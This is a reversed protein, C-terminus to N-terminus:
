IILWSSVFLVFTKVEEEEYGENAEHNFLATIMVYRFIKRM